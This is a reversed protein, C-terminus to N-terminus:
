IFYKRVEDDVTFFNLNNDAECQIHVSNAKSQEESKNKYFFDWNLVKEGYDFYDKGFIQNPTDQTVSKKLAVSTPLVPSSGSSKACFGSIFALYVVFIVHLIFILAFLNKSKM